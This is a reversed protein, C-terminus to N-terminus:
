GANLDEILNPSLGTVHVDGTPRVFTDPTLLMRTMTCARGDTVSIGQGNPEYGLKRSVRLSPVNTEVAETEARTARLHDFAFVLVAQRALTGLGQGHHSRTLWSGTRVSRTIDFQKASIEQSGILRGKWWIGFPLAWSEPALTARRTWQYNLAARIRERPELAAWPFMSEEFAPDFIDDHLLRAYAPFDSDRMLRLQLDGLTISLGFAPFLHALTHSEAARRPEPLTEHGDVTTPEAEVTDSSDDICAPRESHSDPLNLRDNRSTM